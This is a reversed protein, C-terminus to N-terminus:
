SKPLNNNILCCILDKKDSLLNFKGKVDYNGKQSKKFHKKYIHWVEAHAKLIYHTCWFEGIGPSIIQPAKGGSGYGQQCQNRPENFTMWFKVQNGFLEFCLRAYDAFWKVVLSNPWGGLDQIPQPLDWHYLTVFPEINNQKLENIM